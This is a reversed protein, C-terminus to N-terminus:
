DYNYLVQDVPVARFTEASRRSEPLVPRTETVSVRAEALAQALFSDGAEEVVLLPQLLANM